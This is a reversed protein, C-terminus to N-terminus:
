GILKWGFIGKKFRKLAEKADENGSDAAKLYFEVAQNAAAPLGLGKEFMFGTLYDVVGTKYEVTEENRSKELAQKALDPNYTPMDQKLALKALPIYAWHIDDKMAVELCNAAREELSPDNAELAAEGAHMADWTTGGNNFAKEYWEFAIRMTEPDRPWGENARKKYLDGLSSMAEHSGCEAGKTLYKEAKDLDEECGAWGYLYNGGLMYGAFGDGAELAKSYYEIVKQTDEGLRTSGEHARGLARFLVADNNAEAQELAKSVLENYKDNSCIGLGNNSVLYALARPYETIKMLLDYARKKDEVIGYDGMAYLMAMRYTGYPDGEQAARQFWKLGEEVDKVDHTEDVRDLWIDGIVAAAAANGSEWSSQLYSKAKEPDPKAGWGARYMRGLQYASYDSSTAAYVKEYADLAAKDNENRGKGYFYCDALKELAEMSGQNSANELLDAAGTYDSDSGKQDLLANAREIMEVVSM